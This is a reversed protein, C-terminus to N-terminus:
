SILKLLSQPLQNAQALVSISAQLRVQSQAYNTSEASVDTDLFVGRAADQNSIAAQINNAVYDFRSQLAGVTASIKTLANIANDLVESAETATDQTDIAIDDVTFGDSDKYLDDSTAGQIQVSITDTAKTGIQFSLGSGGNQIGFAEQFAAEIAAAKDAADLTLATAGNTFILIKNPDTQSKLGILASAAVSTGLATVTGVDNYGSLFEEGNIVVRIVADKTTTGHTVQFDEIKISTFDNSKLHFKTGALNGCTTTSGVPYITGAATYSDLRRLQYIDIGEMAKNLRTAFLEAGVQDTIATEGSATADDIQIDFYGGGDEISAMRVIVNAAPANPVNKAIYTYDGVKISLDSFGRQGNYLAEFGSITGIFDPNNSVGSTNLGTTGSVTPTLSSLITDTITGQAITTAGSVTAVGTGANFTGAPLDGYTGSVGTASLAVGAAGANNGNVLLAGAGAAITGTIEIESGGTDNYITSAAKSTVTISDGSAVFKLGSLALKEDMYSEDITNLTANIANMLATVSAAGGAAAAVENPAGTFTGAGKVTFTVGNIAITDAAALAGVSKILGQTAVSNKEAKSTIDAPAYLSGDLLKIGNFNTSEAIQNVQDLLEQFEQDLFSRAEESLSGSTAQSALSKQRQLIESLNKVAGAAVGLLSNAQASNTLAAKLTSVNTALITGVALGAVDTAPRDIRYGSSLRQISAQSENNAKNLNAQANLAAINSIIGVPM